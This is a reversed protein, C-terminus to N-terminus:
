ALDVDLVKAINAFSACGKWREGAGAVRLLKLMNWRYLAAVFLQQLHGFSQFWISDCQNVDYMKQNCTDCTYEPESVEIRSSEICLVPGRFEDTFGQAPLRQVNEQRIASEDLKWRSPRCFWVSFDDWVWVGWSPMRPWSNTAFEQFLSAIVETFNSLSWHRSWFAVLMGMHNVCTCRVEDRHFLLMCYLLVSAIFCCKAAEFLTAECGQRYCGAWWWELRTM